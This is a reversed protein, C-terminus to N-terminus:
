VFHQQNQRTPPSWVCGSLLRASHFFPSNILLLQDFWENTKSQQQVCVSMYTCTRFHNQGVHKRRYVMLPFFHLIGASTRRIIFTVPPSSDGPSDAATARNSQYSVSWSTRRTMSLGTGETSRYLYMLLLPPERSSFWALTSFNTQPM